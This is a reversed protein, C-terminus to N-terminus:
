RRGRRKPKLLKQVDAVMGRFTAPTYGKYVARVVGRKDILYTSPMAQVQWDTAVKKNADWLTTLDIGNHSLFQIANELESDLNVTIIALGYKRYKKQMRDFLPLEERCPACWTAWFNVLVVMGQMKQLNIKRGDFAQLRIPKAPKGVMQHDRAAPLLLALSLSLALMM